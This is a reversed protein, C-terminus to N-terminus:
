SNNVGSATACLHFTVGILYFILAILVWNQWAKLLGTNLM